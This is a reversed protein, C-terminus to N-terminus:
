RSRFGNSGIRTAYAVAIPEGSRGPEPPAFVGFKARIPAMFRSDTLAQVDVFGGVPEHFAVKAKCGHEAGMFRRTAAARLVAATQPLLWHRRESSAGSCFGPEHSAAQEKKFQEPAMFRASRPPGGGCTLESRM